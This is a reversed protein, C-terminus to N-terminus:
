PEHRALAELCRHYHPVGQDIPIELGPLQLGYRMGSTHAEMLWHCLIGLRLESDLAPDTQSWEFNMEAFAGGAFQKVFLPNSGAQRAEIKWAIHRLSDAPQRERFGAFDEQGADGQRESGSSPRAAPPLAASIPRPYVLCHMEPLLYSWATFLGLPYRTTLRIRPLRLMGRRTAPFPLAIKRVSHGDVASKVPYAPDAAFHLALRPTPRDNGIHLPFYALDGAFVPEARGPTINLGHLNRFTHIMGTLGIGVLLFVLAFGLPLNYNIAALQMVVLTAAFLLGGRSPVIFVRRQGLRITSNGDSQWRFLQQQLQRYTERINM